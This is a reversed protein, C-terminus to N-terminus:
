VGSNAWTDPPDNDPDRLESGSMVRGFRIGTGGLIADAGSEPLEPNDAVVRRLRRVGGPALPAVVTALRAATGFLGLALTPEVSAGSLELELVPERWRALRVLDSLEVCVRARTAFAFGLARGAYTDAELLTPAYVYSEPKCASGRGVARAPKRLEM